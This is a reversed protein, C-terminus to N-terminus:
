SKNPMIALARVFQLHLQSKLQTIMRCIVNIKM